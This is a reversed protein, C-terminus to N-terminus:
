IKKHYRLYSMFLSAKLRNTKAIDTRDKNKRYYEVKEELAEPTKDLGILMDLFDDYNDLFLAIYEEM